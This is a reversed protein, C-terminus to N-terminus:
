PAPAMNSYFAPSPLLRKSVGIRAPVDRCLARRAPITSRMACSRINRRRPRAQLAVFPRGAAIRALEAQYHERQVSGEIDINKKSGPSVCQRRLRSDIAAPSTLHCRSAPGKWNRAQPLADARGARAEVRCLTRALAGAASAWFPSCHVIRGNGRRACGRARHPADTHWGFFISRSSNARACRGSHGRVAGPQAYAGNNSSRTSGGALRRWCRKSRPPGIYQSRQLRSSRIRARRRATKELDEPKRRRHRLRAM